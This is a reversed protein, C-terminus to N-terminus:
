KGHFIQYFNDELFQAMKTAQFIWSDGRRVPYHTFKELEKKFQPVFLLNEQLWLRKRKTHEELDSLTWVRGTLKEAQLAEFESKEVIVLNPPLTITIESKISQM